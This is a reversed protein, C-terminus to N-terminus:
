PPNSMFQVGGCMLLTKECDEYILLKITLSLVSSKCFFVAEGEMEDLEWNDHSFSSGIDMCNCACLCVFVM